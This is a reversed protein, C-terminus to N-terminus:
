YKNIVCMAIKNLTQKCLSFECKHEDQKQNKIKTKEANKTQIKKWKKKEIHQYHETIENISPKVNTNKPKM